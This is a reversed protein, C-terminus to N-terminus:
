TSEAPAELRPVVENMTYRVFQSGLETLEYEKDDDFASRVRPDVQRRGRQRQPAVKLFNGRGDRPRHQRIVHGTSLDFIILKFLDAEASDERVESGQIEQWIEARTIGDQSAYIAKIVKFHPEGYRDVWDIFLRVVDDSCLSISGAAVLLNRICRRKVESEAASWDRFCKRMISIYEPSRLREEVKEDQLNLRQLVEGMTRTIEEMEKEQLKIWAGLMKNVKAQDFEGWASGAAAAVGVPPVFAGACALLLRLLTPASGAALAKEINARLEEPTKEEESVFEGEGSILM